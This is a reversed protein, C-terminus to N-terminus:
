AIKVRATWAARMPPRGLREALLGLQAVVEESPPEVAVVEWRGTKTQLVMGPQIEYRRFETIAVVKGDTTEVFWNIPEEDLVALLARAVAGLHGVDTGGREYYERNAAGMFEHRPTGGDHALQERPEHALGAAMALVIPDQALRAEAVAYDASRIATM